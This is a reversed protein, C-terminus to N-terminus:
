LTRGLIFGLALIEAVHYIDQRHALLLDKIAGVYDMFTHKGLNIEGKLVAINKQIATSSDELQHALALSGANKLEEAGIQLEDAVNRYVKIMLEKDQKRM